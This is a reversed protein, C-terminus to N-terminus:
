LKHIFVRQACLCVECVFRKFLENFLMALRRRNKECDSYRLPTTFSRSFFRPAECRGLLDMKM